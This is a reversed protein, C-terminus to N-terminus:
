DRYSRYLIMLHMTMFNIHWMKYFKNGRNTRSALNNYTIDKGHSPKARWDRFNTGDFTPFQIQVREVISRGFDPTDIDNDEDTLIQDKRWQRERQRTNHKKKILLILTM